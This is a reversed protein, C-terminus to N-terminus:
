APHERRSSARHFRTTRIAASVGGMNVRVPSSPCGMTTFFGSKEGPGLGSPSSRAIARSNPQGRAGPGPQPDFQHGPDTGVAQEGGPPQVWAPEQALGGARGRVDVSTRGAKRDIAAVTTKVEGVARRLDDTTDQRVRDM